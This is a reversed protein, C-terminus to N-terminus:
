GLSSMMMIVNNRRFKIIETKLELTWYMLEVVIHIMLKVLGHAWLEGCVREVAVM